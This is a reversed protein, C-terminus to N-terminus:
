GPPVFKNKLSSLMNEPNIETRSNLPSMPPKQRLSHDTYPHNETPQPSDFRAKKNASNTDWYGEERIQNSPLVRENREHSYSSYLERGDPPNEHPFDRKLDRGDRSGRNDRASM